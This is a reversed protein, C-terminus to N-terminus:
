SFNDTIGCNCGFDGLIYVVDQSGVQKNWNAIMEENMTEVSTFPRNEYRVINEEEFHTDAIFFIAM